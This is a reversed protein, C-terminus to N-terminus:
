HQKATYFKWDDEVEILTGSSVMAEIKDLTLLTKLWVYKNGVRVNGCNNFVSGNVLMMEVGKSGPKTFLRKETKTTQISM